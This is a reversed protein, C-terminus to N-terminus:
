KQSPYTPVTKKRILTVFQVEGNNLADIVVPKTADGKNDFSIPGTAGPFDKTSALAAQIAQPDASGARGIADLALFYADYGLATLSAAEKGAKDCAQLFTRGAESTANAPHFHATFYLQNTMAVGDLFAEIDWTDGGLIPGEYGGQRLALVLPVCDKYEGGAFILEPNKDTVKKVIEKFNPNSGGVYSEQLIVSGTGHLTQFSQQFAQCLSVSYESSMDKIIGARSSGLNVSVFSAMARGQTQDTFCLRFHYASGQAVLPSTSGTIIVPIKAAAFTPAGAISLASSCSGIVLNVKQDVLDKALKGATLTDSALDARVLEVKRGLVESKKAYALEIGALSEQGGSASNGTLPEYVAIRIPQTNEDKHSKTCAALGGLAGLGISLAILLLFMKFSRM